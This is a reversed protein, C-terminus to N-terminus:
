LEDLSKLFVLQLHMRVVKYFEKVIELLISKHVGYLDRISQLGDVNGLKHLSMAVM